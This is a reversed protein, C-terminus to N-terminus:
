EGDNSARHGGHMGRGGGNGRGYGGGHGQSETEGEEASRGGCGTQGSSECGVGAGVSYAEGGAEVIRARLEAMPMERCDELELSSDLALLEQIAVYRAVGMGAEMAAERQEPTTSQCHGHMGHTSMCHESQQQLTQAQQSNTTTISIDLAPNDSKGSSAAVSQNHQAIVELAEAYTKGVVPLSRGLDDLDSGDFSEVGVVIDFCNVKLALAVPSEVSVYASPTAYAYGGMGAFALCFCAVLAAVVKFKGGRRAKLTRSQQSKKTASVVTPVHAASAVSHHEEVSANSSCACDEGNRDGPEAVFETKSDEECTARQNEIFRLTKENLGDPLDIALFADRVRKEEHTM